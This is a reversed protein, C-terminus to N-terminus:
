DDFDNLEEMDGVRPASLFTRLCGFVFLFVFVALVLVALASNNGSTPPAEVYFVFSLLFYPLSMFRRHVPENSFFNLCGLILFAGAVPEM